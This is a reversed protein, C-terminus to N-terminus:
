HPLDHLNAIIKCARGVGGVLLIRSVNDPVYNLSSACISSDGPERSVSYRCAGRM